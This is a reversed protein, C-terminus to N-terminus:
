VLDLREPAGRRRSNGNAERRASLIVAAPAECGELIDLEEGPDSTRKEDQVSRTRAGDAKM